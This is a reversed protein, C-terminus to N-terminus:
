CLFHFLVFWLCLVHAGSSVFGFTTSRSGKWEEGVKLLQQGSEASVREGNRGGGGGGVSNEKEGLNVQQHRSELPTEHSAPTDTHALSQTHCLTRPVSPPLTFTCSLHHCRAHPFEQYMSLGRRLIVCHCVSSTEPYNATHWICLYLGFSICTHWVSLMIPCATCILYTRTPSSLFLTAGSFTNWHLIRFMIDGWVNKIKM